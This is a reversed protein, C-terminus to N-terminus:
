DSEDSDQDGEKGVDWLYGRCKRANCNCQRVDKNKPDNLAAERRRVVDEEEEEDKDMYDFTLEKGTPIDEYAFFALNFVRLDYKNYSVSYQRCNPECSHNIFRTANGMYQGDVVYCTQATLTPDDGVFKDLSYLYSAKEADANNERRTTEESTLVEGLYVDIFEGKVLPENCCVGWGRDDTKFITLDVHRGKSVLRTKCNTGCNCKEHCEYIPHRQERYFSQLIQVSGERPKSYPFRKPLGATNIFGGTDRELCYQAYGIPDTRLLKEEDVAAYELCECLKTYECGCQGGMDPRCPSQCGPNTEPDAAHVGKRLVFEDIFTFDLSPTSTDVTNELYVGKVKRLKEMFANRILREAAAIPGPTVAAHERMEETPLKSANINTVKGFKPKKTFIRGEKKQLIGNYVTIDLWGPQGPQGDSESPPVDLSSLSPSRSSSLHSHLPTLLGSTATSATANDRAIVAAAGEAKRKLTRSETAANLLAGTRATISGPPPLDEIYAQIFHLALSLEDLDHWSCVARPPVAPDKSTRWRIL